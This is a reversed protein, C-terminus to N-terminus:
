VEDFINHADFNVNIPSQKIHEELFVNIELFLNKDLTAINELSLKESIITTQSCMLGM